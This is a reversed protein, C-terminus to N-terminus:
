LDCLVNVRATYLNTIPTATVVVTTIILEGPKKYKLNVTTPAVVTNATDKFTATSTITTGILKTEVKNSM